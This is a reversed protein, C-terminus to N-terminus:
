CASTNAICYSHLVHAGEAALDSHLLHWEFIVFGSLDGQELVDAVGTNNAKQVTVQCVLEFLIFLHFIHVALLLLAPSSINKGTCM